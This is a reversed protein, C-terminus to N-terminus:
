KLMGDFFGGAYLLMLGLSCDLMWAFVNWNNRPKGHKYCVFGFSLIVLIVYTYQPWM